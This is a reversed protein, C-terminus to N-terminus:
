AGRIRREEEPDPTIALHHAGCAAFILTSAGAGTELTAMGDQVNQELWALADWALGLYDDSDHLRPPSRRLSETLTRGAAAEDRGTLEFAGRLRRRTRTRDEGM